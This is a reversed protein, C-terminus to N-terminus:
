LLAAQTSNLRKEALAAYPPHIEVGIFHRQCQRAAIATSGSGLFPDLVVAGKVTSLEILYRCLSVPKATPHPLGDAEKPLLFYKDLLTETEEVLLLNAPFMGRGVRVETQFLGVQHQLFNELLTGEYPKQAVIIPEYVSKVQPTKWGQLKQHLEAKVAEPLPLRRIFHHLGMGKPQSQTYVWLFTDRLHFGADEVACAVRHFLRPSAFTFFFGGPKLIRFLQQAIPLYWEYLRKGQNPDFKMGPPLHHIQQSKYSKPTAREPTWTEDLKDLFYPPDTLVLDISNDPLQPLVTRSDACLVKDLYPTLAKHSM